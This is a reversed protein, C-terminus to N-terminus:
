PQGGDMVVPGYHGHPYLRVYLAASMSCIATTPNAIPVGLELPAMDWMAVTVVRSLYVTPVAGLQKRVILLDFLDQTPTAGYATM